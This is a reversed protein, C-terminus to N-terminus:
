IKATFFLYKKQFFKKLLDLSQLYGLIKGNKFLVASSDHSDNIGLILM